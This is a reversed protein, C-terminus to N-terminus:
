FIFCPSLSRERGSDRLSCREGGVWGYVVLAGGSQRLKGGESKWCRHLLVKCRCEKCHAPTTTNLVFFYPPGTFSLTRSRSVVCCCPSTFSLPIPACVPSDLHAHTCVYRPQCGMFLWRSPLSCTLPPSLHQHLPLQSGPHRRSGLSNCCPAYPIPTASPPHTPPLPPPVHTHPPLCSPLEFSSNVGTRGLRPPSTPSLSILPARDCM